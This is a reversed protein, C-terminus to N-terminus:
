WNPDGSCFRFMDVDYDPMTFYWVGAEDLWSMPNDLGTLGKKFVDVGDESVMAEAFESYASSGEEFGRRGPDHRVVRVDEYTAYPFGGPVYVVEGAAAEIPPRCWVTGDQWQHSGIHAISHRGASAQYTGARLTGGSYTFTLPVSVPFDGPYNSVVAPESYDRTDESYISLTKNVVAKMGRYDLAPYLEAPYREQDDYGRIVFTDGEEFSFDSFDFDPFYNANHVYPRIVLMIGKSAHSPDTADGYDPTGSYPYTGDSGDYSDNELGVTLLSCNDFLRGGGVGAMPSWGARSDLFGSVDDPAEWAGDDRLYSLGDM